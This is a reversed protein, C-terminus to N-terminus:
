VEYSVILKNKKLQSSLIKMGKLKGTSEVHTGACGYPPLAGFRVERFHNDIVRSHCPLNQDILLECLRQIESTRIHQANRSPDFMVRAEGPWHHAKVPIWNLEELAHGILHGASHLKCHRYRKAADVCAVVSGPAVAQRTYHVIEGAISEVSIVQAEGIWGTDSPQGGGKPHFLTQNLRLAYREVERQECSLVNVTAHTANTEWYLKKTM